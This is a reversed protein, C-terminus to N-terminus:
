MFSKGLEYARQPYDTGAMEEPTNCGLASLVEVREWGLYDTMGQYSLIAGAASAMTEDKMTLLLATKKPTRLAASNAYFRDIALKLQASWDYYYVPSAFVVMDAELLRPNLVDMDDRFVCGQHGTRCRRCAICPHIKQFAADFRFVQHGAEVAGQTFHEVLLASTGHRHPSGTIIVINM